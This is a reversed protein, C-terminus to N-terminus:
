LFQANGSKIKFNFSITYNKLLSLDCKREELANLAMFRSLLRLRSVAGQQIGQTFLLKRRFFM